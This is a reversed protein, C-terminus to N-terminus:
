AKSAPRAVMRVSARGPAGVGAQTGNPGAALTVSGEASLELNSSDNMDGSGKYHAGGPIQMAADDSRHRQQRILPPFPMRRSVKRWGSELASLTYFYESRIAPAISCGLCWSSARMGKLNKM